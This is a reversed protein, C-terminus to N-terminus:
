TFRFCQVRERVQKSQVFLLPLKIALSHCGVLRLKRGSGTMISGSLWAFGYSGCRWLRVQLSFRVANHPALKRMRAYYHILIQLNEMEATVGTRVDRRGRARSAEM